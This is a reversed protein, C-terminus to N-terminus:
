RRASSPTALSEERRPDVRRHADVRRGGLWGRHHRRRGPGERRPARGRPRRRRGARGASRDGRRRARRARDQGRPGHAEQHRREHPGQRAGRAAQGAARVHHAARGDRLLGAGDAAGARVHGRRQLLLGGVHRHRRAHGHQGRAAQDRAVRWPLLALRRHVAGPTALVFMIYKGVLMPDWAGASRIARAVRQGRAAGHGHLAAGHRHAAAPDLDRGLLPVDAERARLCPGPGRGARGRRERCRPHAGRPRGCRLRRWARCHHARRHRRGFPRDRRHRDRHRSQGRGLSVGPVKNLTKEVITACSACTMGLISLSVKGASGAGQTPAGELPTASYGLGEVASVIAEADIVSPDFTVKLRETALNVAALRIGPTKALTKEIISSCSACTMGGIAFSAEAAPSPRSPSRCMQRAPRHLQPCARM